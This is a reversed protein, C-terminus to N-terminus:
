PETLKLVVPEDDHGLRAAEADIALALRRMPPQSFRSPGAAAVAFGPHQRRLFVEVPAVRLNPVFGAVHQPLPFSPLPLLPLFFLIGGRFDLTPCGPFGAYAWGPFGPHNAPCGGMIDLTYGVCGGGMIDLTYRTYGSTGSNRRVARRGGQRRSRLIPCRWRALGPCRRGDCLDADVVQRGLQPHHREAVHRLSGACATTRPHPRPS